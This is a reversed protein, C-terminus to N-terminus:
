EVVTASTRHLSRIKRPVEEDDTFALKSLVQESKQSSFGVIAFVVVNLLQRLDGCRYCGLSPQNVAIKNAQIRRPIPRGHFDQGSRQLKNGKMGMKKDGTVQKDTSTKEQHTTNPM